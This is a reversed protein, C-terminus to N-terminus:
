NIHIIKAAERGQGALPVGGVNFRNVQGVGGSKKDAERPQSYLPLSASQPQCM